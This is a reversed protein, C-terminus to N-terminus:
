CKILLRLSEEVGLDSHEKRLVLTAKIGSGWPSNRSLVEWQVLPFAVTSQFRGLVYCSPSLLYQDNSWNQAGDM